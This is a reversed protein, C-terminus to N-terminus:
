GRPICTPVHSCSRDGAAKTAPTRGKVPVPWHFQSTSCLEKLSFFTGSAATHTASLVQQCVCWLEATDAPSSPLHTLSAGYFLFALYVLSAQTGTPIMSALGSLKCTYIVCYNGQELSRIFDQM